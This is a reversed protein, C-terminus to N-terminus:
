HELTIRSQYPITIKRDLNMLEKKAAMLRKEFPIIEKVGPSWAKHFMIPNSNGIKFGMITGIRKEGGYSYSPIPKISKHNRMMYNHAIDLTHAHGVVIKSEPIESLLKLNAHMRITEQAPTETGVMQFWINSPDKIYEGYKAMLANPYKTKDMKRPRPHDEFIPVDPIDNLVNESLKANGFRVTPPKILGEGLGHVIVLDLDYGLRQKVRNIIEISTEICRTYHSSYIKDIKRKNLDQSKRILRDAMKVALQKGLDTLPSDHPRVKSDPNNMWKIPEYSLKHSHRLVWFEYM